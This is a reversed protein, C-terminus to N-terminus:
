VALRRRTPFAPSDARAHEGLALGVVMMPLTLTGALWFVGTLAFTLEFLFVLTAARALPDRRRWLVGFTVGLLVVLGAMGLVGTESLEAVAINHPGSSDSGGSRFWKLGGGTIPHVAWVQNIAFDYDDQRTNIGNFKSNPGSDENRLTVVSVVLLAAAAMLVLISAQRRRGETRRVAYLAIVVVFALGAGKSRTALLGALMLVRLVGVAQRSLVFREPAVLLLLVAIGFLPGAANKHIGFPYADAFGNTLSNVIAALAVITSAAIFARLATKVEGRYAVAAGVMLAGGFLLVRHFLEAVARGTPEALVSLAILAVYCALATMIRRVSRNHWPVFPIAALVALVTFVDTVSLDSSGSGVRWYAYAAPFVAVLLLVPACLVLALTLSAGAVAFAYVPHTPLLSALAFEVIGLAIVLFTTALRSPAVVDAKSARRRLALV